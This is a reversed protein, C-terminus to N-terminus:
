YKGIADFDLEIVWGNSPTDSFKIFGSQALRTLERVLTRTTVNRYAGRIYPSEFLEQIGIMKSPQESFPDVPETETILFDLLNYERDNILYRRESIKKNRAQVLM